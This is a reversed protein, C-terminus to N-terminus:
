KESFFVTLNKSCSYLGLSSNCSTKPSYLIDTALRPKDFLPATLCCFIHHQLSSIQPPQSKNSLAYLSCHSCSSPSYMAQSSVSIHIQILTLSGKKPIKIQSKYTCKWLHPFWVPLLKLNIVERSVQITSRVNYWMTLYLERGFKIFINLLFSTSVLM